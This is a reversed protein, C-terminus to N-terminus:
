MAEQVTYTCSFLVRRGSDMQQPAPAGGARYASIVYSGWLEHPYDGFVILDDVLKAYAEVDAFMNQTGRIVVGVQPTDFLGDNILGGGPLLNLIGLQDPMDPVDPGVVFKIGVRDGLYAALLNLNM